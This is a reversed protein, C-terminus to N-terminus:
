MIRLIYYIVHVARNSMSLINSHFINEENLADQSQGRLALIVLFSLSFSFYVLYNHYPFVILKIIKVIGTLRSEDFNILIMM